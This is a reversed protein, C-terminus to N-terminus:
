KVQFSEFRRSTYLVQSVSRCSLGSLVQKLCEVHIEIWNRDIGLKSPGTLTEVKNKVPLANIHCKYVNGSSDTAQTQYM